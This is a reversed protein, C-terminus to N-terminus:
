SSWNSDPKTEQKRKGNRYYKIHTLIWNFQLSVFYNETILKWNNTKLKKEQLWPLFRLKKIFFVNKEACFDIFKHPYQLHRNHLSNHVLFTRMTVYTKMNKVATTGSTAFTTRAIIVGRTAAMTIKCRWFLGVLRRTAVFVSFSFMKLKCM